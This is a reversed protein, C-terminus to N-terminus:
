SRYALSLADTGRHGAVPRRCPHAISSGSQPNRVMPEEGSLSRDEGRDKLTPKQRVFASLDQQLADIAGLVHNRPEGPLSPYVQRKAVKLLGCFPM